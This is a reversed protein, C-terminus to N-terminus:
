TVFHIFQSLNKTEYHRECTCCRRCSLLARSLVSCSFSRITMSQVIKQTAHFNVSSFQLDELLIECDVFFTQSNGDLGLFFPIPELEVDLLFYLFFDVGFDLDLNKVHKKTEHEREKTKKKTPPPFRPWGDVTRQHATPSRRPPAKPHRPRQNAGHIHWKPAFFRPFVNHRLATLSPIYVQHNLTGKKPHNLSGKLPNLSRWSPSSFTVTFWRTYIFLYALSIVFYQYIHDFIHMYINYTYYISIYIYIFHINYICIQKPPFPHHKNRQSSGAKPKNSQRYRQPGVHQPSDQLYRLPGAWDHPNWSPPFNPPSPQYIPLKNIVRLIKVGWHGLM